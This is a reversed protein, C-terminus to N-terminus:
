AAVTADSPHAILARDVIQALSSNIASFGLALDNKIDVQLDVGETVKELIQESFVGHGPDFAKLADAHESIREELTNWGWVHILLRRGKAILDVALERALQQLDVDDPSTTVIFYERLEPSFTLAKTLEDRVEKESLEHGAGKLKCQIGVLHAPDGNRIGVLDVGNQRQGRRGHRSVNPDGLLCRFLVVSAREFAQEDAPKPIQTAALASM